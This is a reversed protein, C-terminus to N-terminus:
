YLIQKKMKLSSCITEKSIFKHVVSIGGGGIIMKKVNKQQFDETVFYSIPVIRLLEEVINYSINAFDGM